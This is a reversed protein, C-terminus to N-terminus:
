FLQQSHLYQSPYKLPHQFRVQDWLVAEVNQIMGFNGYDLPIACLDQPYFFSPHSAPFLSLAGQERFQLFM